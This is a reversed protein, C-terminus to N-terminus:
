QESKWAKRLKQLVEEAPMNSKLAFSIIKSIRSVIDEEMQREMQQKMLIVEEATKALLQQREQEAQKRIKIAEAQANKQAEALQIQFKQMTDNHEKIKSSMAKEFEVKIGEAENLSQKIKDQRQKLFELTPRYLFKGLIFVLVGFNVIYIFLAQFDLGLKSLGEM